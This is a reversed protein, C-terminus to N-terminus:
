KQGLILSYTWLKRNLARYQAASGLINRYRTQSFWHPLGLGKAGYWLCSVFPLMALSLWGLRSLSPRVNPTIDDAMVQRFGVATLLARYANATLLNPMAWGELWPQLLQQEAPTLRPEDRLTYEAMIVRGGPKLLRYAEQLFTQKSQAHVVSELAWVVDFSASPFSTATYDQVWFTTQQEVGQTHAHRKAKEIQFPVIAIGTVTGGITRALWISSGGYGCGADLVHDRGQIAARQTLVENMRLLSAAHTKVSADWYGFHIALDNQGTWFTRYDFATARYYENVKQQQTHTV